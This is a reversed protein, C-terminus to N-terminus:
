HMLRWQLRVLRRRKWIKMTRIAQLSQCALSQCAMNRLLLQMTTGRLLTTPNIIAQRNIILQIILPHPPRHTSRGRHRIALDLVQHDQAVRRQQEKLLSNHKPENM